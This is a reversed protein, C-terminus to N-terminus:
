PKTLYLNVSSTPATHIKKASIGVKKKLRSFSLELSFAQWNLRGGVPRCVSRLSAPWREAWARACPANFGPEGILGASRVNSSPYKHESPLHQKKCFVTPQGLPCNLAAANRSCLPTRNAKTRSPAKRAFLVFRKQIARNKANRKELFLSLSTISTGKWNTLTDSNFLKYNGADRYLYHFRINGSHNM